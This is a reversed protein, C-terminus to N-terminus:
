VREVRKKRSPRHAKPLPYIHIQTQAKTSMFRKPLMSVSVQLDAATFGWTKELVCQKALSGNSPEVLFDLEGVLSPEWEALHHM